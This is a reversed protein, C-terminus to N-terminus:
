EQQRKLLAPAGSRKRLEDVISYAPNRDVTRDIAFTAAVEFVVEDLKNDHQWESLDGQKELFGLLALRFYAVEWRTEPSLKDKMLDVGSICGPPLSQLYEWLKKLGGSHVEPLPVGSDISNLLSKLPNVEPTWM